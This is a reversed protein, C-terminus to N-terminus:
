VPAQTVVLVIMLIGGAFEFLTSVGWGVMGGFASKLAPRLEGQRIYESLVLGAAYGVITGILPIPLLFTGIIAGIFGVILTRWTAGTTKAGLAALWINSTGAALGILTILAFVWPSFADFGIVVAAYYLSALWIIILGPIVPLIIGLLGVVFALIVVGTGITFVINEM